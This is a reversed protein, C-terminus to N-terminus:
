LYGAPNVPSGNIRTEFHLHDGFCHGTCGVYGIVQGQSVSAGSSTAYSSLHAYCTSLGGGHQVCVYNGYGGTPGLLVVKGAAAARIPTGAPAAIDIGAHDHDGRDEGFVGTVTGQVPKKLHELGCVTVGGAYGGGGAYSGGGSSSGGGYSGGGTASSGGRARNGVMVLYNGGNFDEAGVRGPRDSAPRRPPAPREYSAAVQTQPQPTPVFAVDRTAFLADWTEPGVIGDVHLGELQQFRIVAQQTQPGFLGDVEVAPDVQIALERQVAAVAPGSDGIKLLISSGPDELATPQVEAASVSSGGGLASQAATVSPAATTGLMAASMAVSASKKRAVQKRGIAAQERRYLSRELSREWLDPSALDRRPLPAVALDNHFHSM